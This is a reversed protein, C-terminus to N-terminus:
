GYCEFVDLFRGGKKKAHAHATFLERASDYEIQSIRQYRLVLPM